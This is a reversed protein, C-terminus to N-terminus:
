LDEQHYIKFLESDVLTEKPPFQLLWMGIM